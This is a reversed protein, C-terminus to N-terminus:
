VLAKWIEAVAKNAEAQIKADDNAASPTDAPTAAPAAAAGGAKAFPDEKADRKALAALSYNQQQLYVAKGGPVPGRNLRKRAEDPAYIGGLVGESLTKVMTASDMRLLDDLDLETGYPKPLELGEDLCLELSEIHIQLAQGYYQQGQAEVNSNLPPTGVGAMYSPVGYAGCITEGTWKLQEILQSDVSTAGVAQYSLGNGLVAISGQNDGGYNEEWRQKYLKAQEEEIFDPHTLIGGPKSGNRFFATSSRQIEIGEVAALGCAYIPSLGCLPHYYTNWRDHIIERAPVAPAGNPINSLDDGDLQYWVSGDGVVMPKVRMPDLVYLATVVGRNDRAKLVYTNGHILKSQMWTTFFQIRNQYRNPKRLVPSFASNEVEEWIGNDDQSVLRCRMKAIDSAILSVCRFLVPNALATTANVTINRQWAGTFAERIIPWWGRSGDVSSLSQPPSAKTIALGRALSQLITLKAM